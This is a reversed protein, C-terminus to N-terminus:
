AVTILGVCDTYVANEDDSDSEEYPTPTLSNYNEEEDSSFVVDVDQQSGNHEFLSSVQGM